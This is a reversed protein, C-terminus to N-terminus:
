AQQRQRSQVDRQGFKACQGLKARHGLVRKARQGITSSALEIFIGFHCKVLTCERLM